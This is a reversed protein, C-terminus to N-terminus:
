KCLLFERALADGRDRPPEEATENGPMQDNQAAPAANESMKLNLVEINEKMWAAALKGSLLNTLSSKMKSVRVNLLWGDGYPDQNVLQPDHLAKENVAVVEGAVPSLINIAISNSRMRWGKEGQELYAGVRPLDIHDMPGILKQAFDDVGIRVTNPGQQEVWSHGQHYHLNQPLNCHRFSRQGPDGGAADPCATGEARNLFKWFFALVVIFGLILVYEMGKTAFIDVYGSTEL